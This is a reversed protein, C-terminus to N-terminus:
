KRLRLILFSIDAEKFYNPIETCKIFLLLDTAGIDDRTM